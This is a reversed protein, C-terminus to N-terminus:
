LEPRRSAACLPSRRCLLLKASPCAPPGRLDRRAVPAPPACRARLGPRAGSRAFDAPASARAHATPRRRARYRGAGLRSAAPARRAAPSGPATPFARPQTRGTKLASRVSFPTFFHGSTYIPPTQLILPRHTRLEEQKLFGGQTYKIAM